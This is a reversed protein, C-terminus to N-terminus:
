GRHARKIRSGREEVVRNVCCLVALQKADLKISSDEQDRVIAIDAYYLEMMVNISAFCPQENLRIGGGVVFRFDQFNIFVVTLDQLRKVKSVDDPCSHNSATVIRVSKDEWSRGVPEM